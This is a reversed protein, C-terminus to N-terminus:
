GGRSVRGGSLSTYQHETAQNVNAGAEILTKVIDLHGTDSATYLPSWGRQLVFTMMVLPKTVQNINAGAEILTRVIDLYGKDSAAHLPCWGCQLVFTMMVLPGAGHQLEHDHKAWLPPLRCGCGPMFAATSEVVPGVPVLPHRQDGNPQGTDWVLVSTM